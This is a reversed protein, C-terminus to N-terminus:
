SDERVFTLTSINQFEEGEHYIRGRILDEINSESELWYGNRMMLASLSQTSFYHLHEGPRYHRWTTPAKLFKETRRPISVIINQATIKFISDFEDFHEISDFFTMLNFELDTSFDVEDIGYDEGHIDIGYVECGIKRLTKLFEGSGYGVDLVRGGFGLGDVKSLAYGARLHAMQSIPHQSPNYRASVYNNAYDMTVSLDSQFIHTCGLCLSLNDSHQVIMM